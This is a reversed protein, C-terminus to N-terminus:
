GVGEDGAAKGPDDGASDVHAEEVGEDGDEFAAADGEEVGEDVSMRIELGEVGAEEAETSLSKSANTLAM